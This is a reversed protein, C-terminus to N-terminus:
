VACKYCVFIQCFGLHFSSFCEHTNQYCIKWSKKNQNLQETAAHFQISLAELFFCMNVLYTHPHYSSHSLNGLLWFLLRPPLWGSDNRSYEIDSAWENFNSEYFPNTQIKKLGYFMPIMPELSLFTKGTRHLSLNKVEVCDQVSSLLPCVFADWLDTQCLSPDCNFKQYYFDTNQDM